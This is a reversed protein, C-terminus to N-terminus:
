KRFGFAHALLTRQQVAVADARFPVEGAASTAEGTASAGDNGQVLAEIFRYVVHEGRKTQGEKGGALDTETSGGRVEPGLEGSQTHVLAARDALYDEAYVPCHNLVLFCAAFDHREHSAHHADEGQEEHAAVAVLPM